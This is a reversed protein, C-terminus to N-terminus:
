YGASAARVQFSLPLTPLSESVFRPPVDVTVMDEGVVEYGRRRVIVTHRGVPLTVQTPTQGQPEGDVVVTMWPREADTSTVGVSVVRVPAYCALPTRAGPAVTVRTSESLPGAECRATYTGPRIERSGNSPISSGDISLTVGPAVSADVFGM